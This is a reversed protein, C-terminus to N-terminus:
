ADEVPCPIHVPAIIITRPATGGTCRSTWNTNGEVLRSQRDCVDGSTATSESGADHRRHEHQGSAVVGDANFVGIGFVSTTAPQSEERSIQDVGSGSDPVRVVNGTPTM